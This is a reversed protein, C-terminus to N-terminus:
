ELTPRKVLLQHGHVHTAEDIVLFRVTKRKRATKTWSQGTRAFIDLGSDENCGVLDVLFTVDSSARCTGALIDTLITVYHVSKTFSVNVLLSTNGDSGDLM